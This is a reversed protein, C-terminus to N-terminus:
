FVVFSTEDMNPTNSILDVHLLGIDIEDSCREKQLCLVDPDDLIRLTSPTEGCVFSIIFPIQRLQFFEAEKSM